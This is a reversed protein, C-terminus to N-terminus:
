TATPLPVSCNWQQANGSSAAAVLCAALIMAPFTRNM